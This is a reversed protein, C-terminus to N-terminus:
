AKSFIRRNTSQNDLTDSVARKQCTTSDRVYSKISKENRHKTLNMIDRTPFGANSLVTVTTHRIEHNTYLRSLQLRKSIKKMFDGISNKGIQKTTEGNTEHMRRMTLRQHAEEKKKRIADADYQGNGDM